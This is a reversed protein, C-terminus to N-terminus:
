LLRIVQFLACKDGLYYQDSQFSRPSWYTDRGKYTILSKINIQASCLSRGWPFSSVARKKFLGGVPVERFVCFKGPKIFSKEILLGRSRAFSVPKFYAERVIRLNVPRKTLTNQQFLGRGDGLLSFSATNGFPKQFAHGMHYGHSCSRDSPQNFFSGRPGWQLNSPTKTPFFAFFNEGGFFRRPFRSFFIISDTLKSLM